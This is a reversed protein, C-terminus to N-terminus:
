EVDIGNIHLVRREHVPVSNIIIDKMDSCEYFKELSLYVFNISWDENNM